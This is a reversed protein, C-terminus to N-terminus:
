FIYEAKEVQDIHFVGSFNESHILQFFFSLIIAHLVDDVWFELLLPLGDDFEAANKIIDLNTLAEVVM